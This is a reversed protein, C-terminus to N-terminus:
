IFIFIMHKLIINKAKELARLSIYIVFELFEGITQKFLSPQFNIGIVNINVLSNQENIYCIKNYRQNLQEFRSPVLSTM